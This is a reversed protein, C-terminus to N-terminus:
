RPRLDTVRKAKGESRPLTNPEVLTVKVAVNIIRHISEAIQARLREIEGVRDSFKERPIEVQVELQDLNDVRSVIIAYHPLAASLALLGAEIQSPFVNVGRIILMDDTRAKIRRIRRIQRGCACPETDIVSLDRTRYRIMPMGQKTLTTFILEGEEGDPRPELTCDWLSHNVSVGRVEVGHDRADRVLQAPAYFGM